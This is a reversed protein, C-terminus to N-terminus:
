LNRTPEDIISGQQTDPIKYKKLLHAYWALVFSSVLAEICLWFEVSYLVNKVMLNNVITAFSYFVGIIFLILSFLRATKIGMRKTQMYHLLRNYKKLRLMDGILYGVLPPIAVLM